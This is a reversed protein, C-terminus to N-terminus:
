IPEALPFVYKEVTETKPAADTTLEMLINCYFVRENQMTIPLTVASSKSIGFNLTNSTAQGQLDYSQVTLVKNGEVLSPIFYTNLINITSKPGAVDTELRSQKFIMNKADEKEVCRVSTRLAEPAENFFGAQAQFAMLTAVVIVLKKM